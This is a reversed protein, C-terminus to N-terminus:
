GAQDQIDQEFNLLTKLNNEVDSNRPDIRLIQRYLNIAGDKYGESEYLLALRYKPEIMMPDLEITKELM